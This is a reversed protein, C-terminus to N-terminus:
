LLKAISIDSHFVIEDSNSESEILEQLRSKPSDTPELVPPPIEPIPLDFRASYEARNSNMSVAPFFPGEGLGTLVIGLYVGNQWLHVSKHDINLLFGLVSGENFGAFVKRQPKGLNGLFGPANTLAFASPQGGLWMNEGNLPKKVFGIHSWNSVSHVKVEWYTKGTSYGQEAIAVDGPKTLTVKNWGEGTLDNAITVGKGKYGSDWRNGTVALLHFPSGHIHKGHLFVSIFCEILSKYPVQFGIMYKGKGIDLSTGPIEEKWEGQRDNGRVVVEFQEGGVAVDRGNEDKTVVTFTTELGPTVRGCQEILAITHQPDADSSLIEGTSSLENPIRKDKAFKIVSSTWPSTLAWDKDEVNVVLHKDALAQRAIELQENLRKTQTDLTDKKEKVLRDLEALLEQKRLRLCDELDEFYKDIAKRVSASNKDIEGTMTEILKVTSAADAEYARLTAESSM